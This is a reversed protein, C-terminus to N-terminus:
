NGTVPMIAWGDGSTETTGMTLRSVYSPRSENKWDAGGEDKSPVDCNPDLVSCGVVLGNDFEDIKILGLEGAFGDTEM